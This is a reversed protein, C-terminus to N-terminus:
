GIDQRKYLLDAILDLNELQNLLDYVLNDAVSPLIEYESAVQQISSPIERELFIQEALDASKGVLAALRDFPGQYGRDRQKQLTIRIAKPFQWRAALWGGVEFQDVSCKTRLIERLPIETELSEEFLKTMLNPFKYVLALLGINHLLGVTYALGPDTSSLFRSNACFQRSLIATTLATFWFRRGSFVPCQGPDLVESVLIGLCMSQTLKLGLVRYVAQKLSHVHGAYAFYASNALGLLRATLSPETEIMACLEPISIEQDNIAKIIEQASISLVPLDNLTHLDIRINAYTSM